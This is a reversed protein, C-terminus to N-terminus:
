MTACLGYVDSWPGQNGHRSYQELPAYGPKLIVSRSVEGDDYESAAGFDLLKLAGTMYVMMINAPSIDRHVLGRANVEELVAMLPETMRFLEDFSRSGKKAWYNGFTIGDIYEMVIYATNNEEFVDSVQVVYRNDAFDALIKAERIFRQKEHFYIESKEGATVTLMRSVNSTRSVLGQPFSEKVAIRKDLRTDVGIYTIGFGGQGLTRGIYYRGALITGVPLQYIENRIEVNQGCRPCIKVQNIKGACYPCYM